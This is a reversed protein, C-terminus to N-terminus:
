DFRNVKSIKITNYELSSRDFVPFSCKREKIGFNAPRYSLTNFMDQHNKSITKLLLDNLQVYKETTLCWIHTLECFYSVEKRIFPDDSAFNVKVHTLHTPLTHVCCLSLCGSLAKKVRFGNFFIFFVACIFSPFYPTGSTLLQSGWGLFVGKFSCEVKKPFLSM